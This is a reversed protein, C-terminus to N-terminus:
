AQPEKILKGDMVILREGRANIFTTNDPINGASVDRAVQLSSLVEKTKENTLSRSGGGITGGQKPKGKRMKRVIAEAKARVKDEAKARPKKRQDIGYVVNDIIESLEVSETSVVYVQSIEATANLALALRDVLDTLEGQEIQEAPIQTQYPTTM